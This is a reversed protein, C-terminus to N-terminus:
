ADHNIVLMPKSPRPQEIVPEPEIVVVPEPEEPPLGCMACAEADSVILGSPTIQDGCKVSVINVVYNINAESALQGEITAATEAEICCRIEKLAYVLRAMEDSRVKKNLVSRYLRGMERRVATVTDLSTTARHLHALLADTPPLLETKPKRGM